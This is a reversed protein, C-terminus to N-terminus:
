VFSIAKISAKEQLPFSHKMTQIFRKTLPSEDTHNWAIYLDMEQKINKLSKYVIGKKPYEQQASETVLTVGIGAAVLSLIHTVGEAEQHIAPSMDGSQCISIITDYYGPELRRPAMIFPDGKLEKIHIPGSATASPHNKPLAAVFPSSYIHQFRLDPNDVPLCLFGIHIEKEALAKQQDTSSMPHLTVQIDPYRTRHLHILRILNANLSGTFAVKLVGAEGAHIKRTEEVSANIKALIEQTEQLFHKGAQTLEVSRSNRYFLKVEMEKELQIIQQSLPPQSINLRKAANGFHLEEAVAIFYHLHRLEITHGEM